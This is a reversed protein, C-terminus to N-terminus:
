EEPVIFDIITIFVSLAIALVCTLLYILMITFNSTSIIAIYNSDTGETLILDAHPPSFTHLNHSVSIVSAGTTNRNNESGCSFDNQFIIDNRLPVVRKDCAVKEVALLDKSHNFYIEITVSSSPKSLCPKSRKSLTAQSLLTTGRRFSIM